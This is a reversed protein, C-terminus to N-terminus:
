PRLIYHRRPLVETLAAPNGPTACVAEGEAGEPMSFLVRDGVAVPNTATSGKQRIKGRLVAPFLNWEPLVTLLYHSGTHKVVTAEMINEPKEPVFIRFQHNKEAVELTKNYM